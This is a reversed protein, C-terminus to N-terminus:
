APSVNTQPLYSPDQAVESLIDKEAFYYLLSGESDSMGEYVGLGMKPHNVKDPPRPVGAPDLTCQGWPLSYSTEEDRHDIVGVLDCIYDQGDLQQISSRPDDEVEAVSKRNPKTTSSTPVDVLAMGSPHGAVMRPASSMVVYSTTTTAKAWPAWTTTSPPAVAM